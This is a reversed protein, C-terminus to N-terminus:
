LGAGVRRGGGEPGCGREWRRREWIGMGSSSSSRARRLGVARCQRACTIRDIISVPLLAQTQPQSGGVSLAQNRACGCISIWHSTLAYVRECDLHFTVHNDCKFCQFLHDCIEHRIKETTANSGSFLSFLIPSWFLCLYCSSSIALICFSFLIVLYCPYLSQM